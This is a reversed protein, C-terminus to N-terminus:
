APKRAAEGPQPKPRPPQRRKAVDWLRVGIDVGSLTPRERDLKGGNDVADQGVSYIILGEKIRLYRLPKGDFPDVPVSGLYQPCLQAANDPWLKKDRRYREAALAMMTCRLSAHKRRSGEGMKSVAPLLTRTIVANRPLARVDRDFRKELAAQEQTPQALENIRRTMFSLLLAHEQRTDMRSMSILTSEMWDSRSEILEKASLEGREVAEFAQHFMAREGRAAILLGPFDEEKELQKQLAALEDSPPESQALTREIAQCAHAVCANRVLQSIFFPEDGISRGANLAARCATLAKKSDGKQNQRMAEYALLSVLNRSEQLHPLLIAIPNREYHIRHRGRPMDSLKLASNLAPRAGALERSLRVFDNRNLQENPPLDQFHEYPFDKSPWPKPLRRAAATVVSASNEEESVPERAVEIEEFRWGPDTRDLEALSVQLKSAMRGRHWILGIAGLIVVILVGWGLFKLLVMLPRPRTTEDSRNETEM